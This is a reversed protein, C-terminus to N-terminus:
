LGAFTQHLNYFPVWAGELAFSEAQFDGSAIREWLVRGNPVGGVYGDGNATQVEALAAVMYDLRRRMEASGQAAQQALAALSHGAATGEPARSGWDPSGRPPA